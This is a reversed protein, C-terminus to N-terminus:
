EKVEWQYHTIFSIDEIEYSQNVISGDFFFVEIGDRSVLTKGDLLAEYCEEQSDM